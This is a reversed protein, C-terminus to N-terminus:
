WISQRRRARDSFWLLLRIRSREPDLLPPPASVERGVDNAGHRLGPADVFAPYIDRIHIGPRAKADVLSACYARRSGALRDGVIGCHEVGTTDSLRSRRSVRVGMLAIADMALIGPNASRPATASEFEIEGFGKLPPVILRVNRDELHHVVEDWTTADDPWGHLLLVAKGNKEGYESFHIRLEETDLHSM